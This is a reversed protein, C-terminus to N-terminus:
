EIAPMPPALALNKLKPRLISQLCWCRTSQGPAEDKVSLSSVVAQFLAAFAVLALALTEFILRHIRQNM